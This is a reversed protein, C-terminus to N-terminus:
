LGLESDNLQDSSFDEASVSDMIGDLDELMADVDGRDEVRVESEGPTKGDGSGGAGEGCSAHLMAASALLCLLAATAAFRRPARAGRM